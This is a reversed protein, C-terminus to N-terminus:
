IMGTTSILLIWVLQMAALLIFAYTKDTMSSTITFVAAVSLLNGITMGFTQLGM